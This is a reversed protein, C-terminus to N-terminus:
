RRERKLAGPNGVNAVRLSRRAVLRARRYAKTSCTRKQARSMLADRGNYNWGKRRQGQKKNQLSLPRHTRRRNAPGPRLFTDPIWAMRWLPVFMEITTVVEITPKHGTMLSPPKPKEGLGGARVVLNRREPVGSAFWPVWHPLSARQLLLLQM